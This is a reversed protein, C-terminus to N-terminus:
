KYEQEGMLIPKPNQVLGCPRVGPGPKGKGGIDEEMRNVYETLKKVIEPNKDFLDTTEGIDNDLNFLLPKRAEGAADDKGEEEAKEGKDNSKPPHVFLKWPGSRVAQITGGNIYFLAEHPSDKRNGSLLPWIDLGDIIRDKPVEGGALTVLTPLIDIESTMADCTSGAPVKGPWWALTPERMGGEWTSGKGGRLPVAVGGAKGMSLWPGNDSTFLVLTNKDINLKRLTELIQGTSWDVEEVWDCYEGNKSKGKFEPGPNLPVHVATHPLYLFFPKDKNATIFKVAEDTYLRTLKTQEVPAEAVKGDRLLPLPPRKGKKMDGGMDNSYPLGVWHDFGHNLPLFEPQDGLHWKGICMTSYGRKKLLDAVTIENKGLGTRGSPFLVAGLSVRKAYCGTMVQARSPTCVPAAYFSTLKMGEKAMRTLNPTRNLKSGFPEIDGYGMDDILIVIFNPPRANDAANLVQSLMTSSLFAVASGCGARFLFERRSYGVTDMYEGRIIYPEPLDFPWCACSGTNYKLKDYITEVM